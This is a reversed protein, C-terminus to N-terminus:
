EQVQIKRAKLYSSYAEATAQDAGDRDRRTAENIYATVSTDSLSAAFSLWPVLDADVSLNIKKGQAM